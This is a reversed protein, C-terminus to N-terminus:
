AQIFQQPIERQYCDIAYQVINLSIDQQHLTVEHTRKSDDRFIELLLNGLYYLEIGIGDRGDSVDSAIILEIGQLKM